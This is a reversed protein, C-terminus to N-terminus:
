GKDWKPMPVLGCGQYHRNGKFHVLIDVWLACDTKLCPVHWKADSSDEPNNVALKVGSFFPCCKEVM